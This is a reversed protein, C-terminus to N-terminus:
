HPDTSTIVILVAKDKGKWNANPLNNKDLSVRPVLWPNFPYNVWFYFNHDVGTQNLKYM